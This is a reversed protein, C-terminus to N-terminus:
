TVPRNHLTIGESEIRFTLATNEDNKWATPPQAPCHVEQGLYFCNKYM